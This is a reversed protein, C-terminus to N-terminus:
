GRVASVRAKERVNAIFDVIAEKSSHFGLSKGDMLLHYPRFVQGVLDPYYIVSAVIEGTQESFIYDTQSATLFHNVM